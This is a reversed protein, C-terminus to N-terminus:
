TKNKFCYWHGKDLDLFIGNHIWGTGDQLIEQKFPTKKSLDFDLCM